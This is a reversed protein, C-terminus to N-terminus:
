MFVDRVGSVRMTLECISFIYCITVVYCMVWGYYIPCRSPAFPTRVGWFGGNIKSFYSDTM